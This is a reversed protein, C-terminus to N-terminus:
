ADTLLRDMLRTILARAARSRARGDLLILQNLAVGDIAAVLVPADAAPDPSGAARLLTEALELGAATWAGYVSRLEPRHVAELQLHYRALLMPTRSPRLQDTVYGVIEEAWDVTGAPRATLRELRARILAIETQAAHRLAEILMADRSAFYYTTSGLPVGAEAAVARHSAAAAGDRAVVRLTADLLATRRAEGRGGESPAPTTASPTSARPAM